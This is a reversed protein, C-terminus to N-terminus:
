ERLALHGESSGLHMGSNHHEESGRHLRLISNVVRTSTTRASVGEAANRQTLVSRACMSPAARLACRGVAVVEVGLVGVEVACGSDSCTVEDRAEVAAPLRDAAV